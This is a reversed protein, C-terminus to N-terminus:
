SASNNSEYDINDLSVWGLWQSGRKYVQESIEPDQSIDEAYQFGADGFALILDLLRVPVVDNRNGIQNAIFKASQDKGYYWIQRATGQKSGRSTASHSHVLGCRAGYLDVATCPLSAANLLYKDAWNIFAKPTVDGSPLGVWAMTDIASYLVVLLQTNHQYRQLLNLADLTETTFKFLLKKAVDQIRIEEM